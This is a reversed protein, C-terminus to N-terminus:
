FRPPATKGKTSDAIMARRVRQCTENEPKGDCYKELFEVQSLKKGDVVINHPDSVEPVGDGCATLAAATLAIYFCKLKM